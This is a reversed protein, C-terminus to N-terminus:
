PYKKGDYHDRRLINKEPPPIPMKKERTRTKGTMEKQVQQEEATRKQAGLVM